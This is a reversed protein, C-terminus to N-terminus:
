AGVVLRSRQFRGAGIKGCGRLVAISSDVEGRSQTKLASVNGRDVLARGPRVKFRDRGRKGGIRISGACASQWSRGEDGGPTGLQRAGNRRSQFVGDGLSLP